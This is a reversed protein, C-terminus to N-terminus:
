NGHPNHQPRVPKLNTVIRPPSRGPTKPPRTSVPVKHKGFILELLKGM